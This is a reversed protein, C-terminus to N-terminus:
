CSSHALLVFTNKTIKINALVKIMKDLVWDVSSTGIFKGKSDFIGTCITIMPEKIGTAGFYPRSIINRNYQTVFSKASTYWM